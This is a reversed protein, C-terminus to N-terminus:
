KVVNLNYKVSITSGRTHGGFQLEHHGPALPLLMVYWGDDVGPFYTGEPFRTGYFSTFLNDAPLTFSFAVSQVRYKEQLQPISIGDLTCFVTANMLNSEVKARLASITQFKPNGPNEALHEELVSDESNMLPFYLAKDSRVTCNRVINNFACVDGNPCFKGGLFWVPGSQGTSCDANDFLPHKAAPISDVWQQWAASWESYTRGYAISDRDITISRSGAKVSVGHVTGLAIATAGAIAAAFTLRPKTIFTRTMFDM